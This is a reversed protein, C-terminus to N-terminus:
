GSAKRVLMEFLILESDNLKSLDLPRQAAQGDPSDTTAVISTAAGRAAREIMAARQSIIAMDKPGMTPVIHAEQWAQLRQVVLNQLGISLATHRQNMAAIDALRQQREREAVDADFLAAREPWTYKFRLALWEPSARLVKRPDLLTQGRCERQHATYARAVSREWNPTHYLYHTFCHFHRANEGMHTQRQWPQLEPNLPIVPAPVLDTSM